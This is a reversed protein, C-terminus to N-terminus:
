TEHRQTRSPLYTSVVPEGCFVSHKRCGEFLPDGGQILSNAFVRFFASGDYYGGRALQIFQEVHKPAVDPAFEFRFTGLSTSVVAELDNPSPSQQAFAAGCALAFALLAPVARM